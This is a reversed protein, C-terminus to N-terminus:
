RPEATRRRRAQPTCGRVYGSTDTIGRGIQGCAIEFTYCLRNSGSTVRGWSRLTCDCPPIAYPPEARPMMTAILRTNVRCLRLSFSCGFLHLHSRVTKTSIADLADSRHACCHGSDVSLLRFWGIAVFAGAFFVRSQKLAAAATM